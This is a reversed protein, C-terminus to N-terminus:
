AGLCYARFLDLSLPRSKKLLMKECFISYDEFSNADDFIDTRIKKVQYMGDILSGRDCAQFLTIIKYGTMLSLEKLTDAVFEPLEYDDRKSVVYVYNSKKM